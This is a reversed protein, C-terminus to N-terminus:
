SEDNSAITCQYTYYFAFNGIVLSNLLPCDKMCFSKCWFFNLSTQQSDNCSIGLICNELSPLNTLLCTTYDIFSNENFEIYLLHPCDEIICSCRSNIIRKKDLLPSIVQYSGDDSLVLHCFSYRGIQLTHITSHHQLLFQTTHLFCYDGIEIDELYCCASFDVCNVDKGEFHNITLKRIINSFQLISPNDVICHYNEIEGNIMIEDYLYDGKKDYLSIPGFEKGNQWNGRSQLIMNSSYQKYYSEGKGTRTNEFYWGSFVKCNEEDYECGRGNAKGNYVSGEWRYGSDNEIIGITNSSYDFPYEDVLIGDSFLLVSNMYDEITNFLAAKGNLKNNRWNAFLVYIEQGSEDFYQIIGKGEKKFNTIQCYEIFYPLQLVLEGKLQKEDSGCSYYRLLQKQPSNARRM